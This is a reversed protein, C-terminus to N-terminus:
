SDAAEEGEDDGEFLQVLGSLLTRIDFLAGLIAEVDGREWAPAPM